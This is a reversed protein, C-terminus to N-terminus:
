VALLVCGVVSLTAGLTRDILPKHQPLRSALWVGLAHLSATAAIFGAMTALTQAGRLEAGHATGHLLAFLAVVGVQVARPLPLNIAFLVGLAILGAAIGTEVGAIAVGNVALMFGASMAALFALPLQWCARGGIRGAWVGVFLMMLLHDIGGFPHMFAAVFGSDHGPHAFALSPLLLGCILLAVKKNM